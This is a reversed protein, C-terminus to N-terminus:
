LIKDPSGCLNIIPCDACLPKQAKCTNRGHRIFLLHTETWKEKSIITTLAKEIAKPNKSSIYGLRNSIRIVHTDVALAPLGYGISLIVSASKRGVGPLKELSTRDSPLHGDFEETVTKSLNIINSAKNRYFGTSRIINQIEKEKAKSLAIFDPYVAFLNGTVSNVQKDTTQASLVVAITLQYLNNFNLDARVEGYHKKLLKLIQNSTNKDM